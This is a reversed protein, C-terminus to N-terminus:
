EIETLLDKVRKINYHINDYEARICNKYIFKIYEYVRVLADENECANLREIIKNLESVVFEDSVVAKGKELANIAQEKNMVLIKMENNIQIVAKNMSAFVVAIGFLTFMVVYPIVILLINEIQPIAFYVCSLLLSIVLFIGMVFSVPHIGREGDVKDKQLFSVLGYLIISVDACIFAIWFINNFNQRCLLTILNFGVFAILTAILKYIKFNKM